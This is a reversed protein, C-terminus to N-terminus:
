KPAPTAPTSLLKVPPQPHRIRRSPPLSLDCGPFNAAELWNALAFLEIATLGGPASRTFTLESPATQTIETTTNGLTPGVYNLWKAAVSEPDLQKHHTMMLTLQAPQLLMKLREDTIEWHYFVLNAPVLRAFLEAPLPKGRPANPFLGGVLFNGSTERVAQVSPAVFPMGTWVIEHNTMTMTLPMSLQSQSSAPSAAIKDHLQVLAANADPVPVAAFTQFPIGVLAWFFIQNPVPSILYSQAWGQKQLWPAIGRAATFSIVPQHITNTPLRWKDLTFAFPQGSILKGDLHLNGDRGIVSLKAEPLDVLKLAPFLKALQPRDADLSLWYNKAATPPIKAVVGNGLAFDAQECSFVAWDGTRVFRVSDPPHHKTLQWGGAIKQTSIKTWAELVAALNDQWLRARNNDLRIALAFETSGDAASRADLFWEAKLLDDLLPRLQAAGDGAGAAIKEKLWLYPAHALKGLTQAKLAQAEASCFFNTFAVANADASIKEAGVFHIRAILDAAPATQVAGALVLAALFLKKM